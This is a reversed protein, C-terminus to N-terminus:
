FIIQNKYKLELLRKCIIDVTGRSTLGQSMDEETVKICDRNLHVYNIRKLICDTTTIRYEIRWDRLQNKLDIVDLNLSYLTHNPFEFKFNNYKITTVLTFYRFDLSRLSPYLGREETHCNRIITTRQSTIKLNILNLYSYFLDDLKILSSCLQGQRRDYLSFFKINTLVINKYHVYHSYNLPILLTQLNKFSQIRLLGLTSQFSNALHIHPIHFGIGKMHHVNHELNKTFIFQEMMYFNLKLYQLRPVLQELLTVTASYIPSVGGDTEAGLYLDLHRLSPYKYTIYDLFLNCDKAIEGKVSIRMRELRSAPGFCAMQNIKEQTFELRTNYICLHVLRPNSQHLNELPKSGRPSFFFYADGFCARETELKERLKKVVHVDSRRLLPSSLSDHLYSVRKLNPFIYPIEMLLTSNVFRHDLYCYKVMSGNLEGKKFRDLVEKTRTPPIVISEYLISTYLIYKLRRSTKALSLRAYFNLYRTIELNVEKPLQDLM